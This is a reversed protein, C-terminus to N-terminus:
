CPNGGSTIGASAGNPDTAIPHLTLTQSPGRLVGTATITMPLTRIWPYTEGAPYWPPVSGAQLSVPEERALFEATIVSVTGSSSVTYEVRTANTSTGVSYVAVHCSFDSVQPWGFCLAATPCDGNVIVKNFGNACSGYRVGHVQICAARAGDQGLKQELVMLDHAGLLRTQPGGPRLTALGVSFIAAIAGGIVALIAISVIVEILTFGQEAHRGLRKRTSTDIM